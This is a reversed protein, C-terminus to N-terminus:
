MAAPWLDGVLRTGDLRHPAPTDHLVLLGEPLVALGEPRDCGRGVAVETVLAVEDGTIAPPLPGAAGGPLRVIRAPGDLVMTPGALILLDDGERALDRVGLGELDVFHKTVGDLVLKGGDAHVAVELLVAWGRLVPGRLGLVVAGGAQADRVAVGEVDFGNDKGPIDLFPALHEDDALAALLGKKGAPLRAAEGLGSVEKGARVTHPGEPGDKLPLRALVSRSPQPDVDALRPGVEAPATGPKIRKRKASHSGAVWLYGDVVDLGEADVEDEPGGKLDVADTLPVEEPLEWDLSGGPVRRLRLLGSGEDPALFMTDGVVAVGSLDVGATPAYPGLDLRVPLPTSPVANM